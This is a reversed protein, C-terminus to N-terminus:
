NALWPYNKLAEKSRDGYDYLLEEGIAINEKAILILRPIGDLFLTKTVLNGNRSHNILRGLRDSEPTADICYQQNNHKFYYMYCGTDPDMAYKEERRKAESIDILEGSYEVVFDGKEFPRDAVIGRGKDKFTTIKLGDEINNRLAKEILRQKEELVTSKTKRVSRRIPFYETLKHNGGSARKMFGMKNTQKPPKEGYDHLIEEGIQINKKAILVLRPKGDLIVTKTNVNGNQSHNILRGLRGTDLTSDICYQQNRHKFYYMNCAANQDMSYIKEREKAETIDILEGSYEVVFDGKKFYKEAVVQQTKNKLIVLKLGEDINKRLIKEILKQKARKEELLSSKTRRVSLRPSFYETLKHNEVAQAIPMEELILQEM